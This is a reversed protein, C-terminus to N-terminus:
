SNETPIMLIEQNIIILGFSYKCNQSELLISAAKKVSEVDTGSIVLIINECAMNGKPNWFNQTAQIFGANLYQKYGDKSSEILVNEKFYLKLGIKEHIENIESILETDSKSLVIINCRSKENKSLMEIPLTEAKVNFQLLQTKIKEAEEYFEKQFAIITPSVKGKYGNIFANPYSALTATLTFADGWYHYDWQIFDNNFLIYTSAGEKALFGNVYFFWDYPEKPYTSKVGNVSTVFGGGYATEVEAVMKLADLASSGLAINVREEVLIEKGFNKTVVIYVSILNSSKSAANRTSYFYLSIFAILILTVVLFALKRKRM